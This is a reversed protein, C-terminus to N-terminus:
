RVLKFETKAGSVVLPQEVTRGEFTLSVIYSGFAVNTFSFRGDDEAITTVPGLAAIVIATMGEHMDCLVDFQGVRDFTYVQKQHPDTSLNM